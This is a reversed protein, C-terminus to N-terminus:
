ITKVILDRQKLFFFGEKLHIVQFIFQNVGCPVPGVMISDLVQDYEKSESSGVYIIKWELDLFSLLFVNLNNCICVYKITKKVDTISFLKPNYGLIIL